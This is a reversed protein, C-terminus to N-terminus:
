LPADWFVAAFGCTTPASGTNALLTRPTSSKNRRGALQKLHQRGGLHRRGPNRAFSARIGGKDPIMESVTFPQEQGYDLFDQGVVASSMRM